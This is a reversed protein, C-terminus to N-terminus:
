TRIDDVRRGLLKKAEEPDRVLWDLTLFANVPNITRSEMLTQVSYGEVEPSELPGGVWWRFFAARIPPAAGHLRRAVDEAHRPRYGYERQLREALDPVSVEVPEDGHHDSM